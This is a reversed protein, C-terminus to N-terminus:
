RMQKLQSVTCLCLCLELDLVLYQVTCLDNLESFIVFYFLALRQGTHKLSKKKNKHLSKAFGDNKNMRLILM